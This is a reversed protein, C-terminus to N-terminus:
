IKEHRKKEALHVLTTFLCDSRIKKTKESSKAELFFEFLWNSLRKIKLVDDLSKRDESETLPRRYPVLKKSLKSKKAQSSLSNMAFNM